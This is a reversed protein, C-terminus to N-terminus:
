EREKFSTLNKRDLGLLDRFIWFELNYVKRLSEDPVTSTTKMVEDSFIHSCGFIVVMGKKKRLVSLIPIKEEQNEKNAISINETPKNRKEPISFLLPEGGVVKGLHQGSCIEKGNKDIIKGKETEYYEIGLGFSSVIQYATSTDRNRPDDIILAKGGNEIFIKFKNIEKYTFPKNPNILVVADSEELADIFKLSLKPFIGLRQTWVYFTKFSDKRELYFEKAPLYINSHEWDFCVKFYKTHPKPVRYNKKNINDFIKIGSSVALLFSFLVLIFLERKNIKKAINFAFIMSIISLALFLKNLFNFKNRRNLWETSGLILEPKGPMFMSFNSFCTSDTFLLVRGKKYKKSGMQVFLGFEMKTAEAPNTPFFNRNSYDAEVSKLGYGIIVNESFLPAKLTCSTAFLFFPMNNIVPHSLIKKPEYLSFGTTSLDYTADYKFRFGFIRAIQNLYTGMGFVNTHDGILFLGGGKKVFDKIALIERDSFSNTPTKIMLIDHKDLLQSSIEEKNIEVYYYHNLSDRLCYYNYGSKEGYWETDYVQETWEWNSHAEDILIRGKKREGRDNFGWFGTFSFASLSLLFLVLAHKPRFTDFNLNIREIKKEEFNFYKMLIMPLFVFSLIVWQPKWLISISSSDSIFFLIILYRLIGYSIVILFLILIERKMKRSFLILVIISGVLINLMPYLGLSEWTTSVAIIGESSKLIVSNKDFSSSLGFINELFSFVPNLPSIEHYRSAFHLYFPYILTQTLLIVGTIFLGISFPHSVKYKSYFLFCLMSLIIFIAGLNFPYPIFLTFILVPILFIYFSSKIKELEFGRFALTISLLGLLLFILYTWSKPTFIPLLLLWMMSICYIGIWIRKM